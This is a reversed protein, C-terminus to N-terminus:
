KPTSQTRSHFRRTYPVTLRRRQAGRASGVTLRIRASIRGTTAALLSRALLVRGIRAKRIVLTGVVGVRRGRRVEAFVFGEDFNEM